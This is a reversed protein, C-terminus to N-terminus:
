PKVALTKPLLARTQPPRHAGFPVRAEALVQEEVAIGAVAALAPSARRWLIEARIEGARAVKFSFSERRTEGAAIRSDSAERRALFFPVEAGQDDVLVRTYIREAREIEAGSEDLARVRLVIQRGPLSTPVAHGAAENKLRAEAHITGKQDEVTLQMTLARRRLDGGDGMCGHNGVRAQRGWGSAVEAVAGPMHCDQCTISSSAYSSKAWETHETFIPLEGGGPLPLALHHCGACFRSERHLPSCGTKHFYSDKADCLPGRKINDALVMDIRARGGQEVVDKISHCVECTVAESAALDTPDLLRKLPAHCGDCSAGDPARSRMALYLDSRDARAHGSGKWDNHLAGHCEGCRNATHATVRASPAAPAATAAKDASPQPPSSQACGEALLLFLGAGAAATM